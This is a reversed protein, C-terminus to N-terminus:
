VNEVEDGVPLEAEADNDVSNDVSSVRSTSKQGKIAAEKRQPLIAALTQIWNKNEQFRLLIDFVHNVTLIHSTSLQIYEKIPLKATRINLSQAKKFTAGKLRNRDVIGGIVYAHNPNLETLVEEADSTLYILEKKSNDASSLDSSLTQYEGTSLLDEATARFGLWKDFKIRELGKRVRPGLNFLSFKVPHAQKRNAGYCYMIQQILSTMEKDPHEDEWGCDIIVEFNDAARALFDANKEDKTMRPPRPRDVDEKGDGASTAVESGQAEREARLKGNYEARLKRLTEKKARKKAHQYEKWSERNAERKLSKKSRKEEEVNESDDVAANEENSVELPVEM